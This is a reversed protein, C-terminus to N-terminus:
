EPKNLKEYYEAASMVLIAPAGDPGSVETKNKYAAVHATLIRNMVITRMKIDPFCRMRADEVDGSKPKKCVATKSMGVINDIENGLDIEYVGLGIREYDDEMQVVRMETILKRIEVFEPCFRHAIQLQQPKLKFQAAVDAMGLSPNNIWYEAIEGVLEEDFMLKRFIKDLCTKRVPTKGELRTKPQTPM